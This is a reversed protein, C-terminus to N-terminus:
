GDGNTLPEDETPSEETPPETTGETPATETEIPAETTEETPAVEETVEEQTQEEEGVILGIMTGEEVETGPDITQRIVLDINDNDEVFELYYDLNNEDLMNQAVYYGYGRVDPVTVKHSQEGKSVYLIITQAPNM